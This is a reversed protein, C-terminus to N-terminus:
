GKVSGSTMGSVIYKQGILYITIVPLSTLLIDASVLNWSKYYMGFFNYVALTMPWKETSNLFYLPMVFENWTNLFVLVMVTILVPKLIPFVVSFFLRMPSCGDIVGAEDIEMPIKSIFGYILFVSFPMQTASYLLIIGFQTNILHSIQMVKMTAVYNLPIALGLVIFFYLFNNIKTRNRSLAYACMASLITTIVVSGVSYLMSNLFTIGLKGEEIVTAFNQFQLPGKPLAFSMTNADASTKLSNILILLLPILLILSSVVAIINIIVSGVKKKKSM